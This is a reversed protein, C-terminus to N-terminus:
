RGKVLAIGGLVVLASLIMRANFQEGLVLAGLVVAIVPNV